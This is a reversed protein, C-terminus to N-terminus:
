AAHSAEKQGYESFLTELDRNVQGVEFVRLGCHVLKQILEACVNSHEAEPMLDLHYTHYDGTHSVLNFRRVGSLRSVFGLQAPAADCCLAVQTSNKIESLPKDLQIEGKSLLIVRDCLAEVEQMIHTSLIVTARKAVEKILHRMQQTQQPDLGNTPEDLILLRPEGLLAQAVGVRQKYGRSLSSISSFLRTELATAGVAQKIQQNKNRGQLGKLSAAFDLYDAVIMDPYVPLSEPLYGLKAQFARSNKALNIGDLAVEGDDPELYGSLMKMITTKGAGNHGLLGVIQGPEIDFSVNNVAIFNGYRRSLDRVTLM